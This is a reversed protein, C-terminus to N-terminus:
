GLLLAKKRLKRGRALRKWIHGRRETNKKKGGPKELDKETTLQPVSDPSWPGLEQGSCGGLRLWLSTVNARLQMM